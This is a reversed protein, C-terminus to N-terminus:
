VFYSACVDLRQHPKMGTNLPNHRARCLRQVACLPNFAHLYIKPYTCFNRSIVTLHKPLSASFMSLISPLTSAILPNTSLASSLSLLNLFLLAFNPMYSTSPLYPNPTTLTPVICNHTSFPLPPLCYNSHANLTAKHEGKIDKLQIFSALRELSKLHELIDRCRM